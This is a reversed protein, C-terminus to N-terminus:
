AGEGKQKGKVTALMQENSVNCSYSVITPEQYESSRDM